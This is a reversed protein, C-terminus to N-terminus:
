GFAPATTPTDIEEDVNEILPVTKNQLKEINDVLQEFKVKKWTVLFNERHKISESLTTIVCQIFQIISTFFNLGQDLTNLQNVFLSNFPLEKVKLLRDELGINPNSLETTLDRIYGAVDKDKEPLRSSLTNFRQCIGDLLFYDAIYTKEFSEIAESLQDPMDNIASFHLTRTGYEKRLHAQYEEIFPEKLPLNSLHDRLYVELQIDLLSSKTQDIDIAEHIHIHQNLFELKDNKISIQFLLENDYGKISLQDKLTKLESTTQAKLTKLYTSENLLEMKQSFSMDIELVASLFLQNIQTMVPTMLTGPQLCLYDEEHSIKAIVESYFKDKIKTYDNSILKNTIGALESSQTVSRQLQRILDHIFNITTTNFGFNNKLDNQMKKMKTEIWRNSALQERSYKHITLPHKDYSASPYRTRLFNIAKELEPSVLYLYKVGLRTAKRLTAERTDVFNVVRRQPQEFFAKELRADQPPNRTLIRKKADQLIFIFDDTDKKNFHITSIKQAINLANEILPAYRDKLEPTIHDFLNKLQQTRYGIELIKKTQSLLNEEKTMLEFEKLGLELHYFANELEKLHKVMLPDNKEFVHLNAIKPKNLADQIRFSFTEKTIEHFRVRVDEIFSSLKLEQLFYVNSRMTCISSFTSPKLEGPGVLTRNKKSAIFEKKLKEIDWAPITHNIFCQTNLHNIADNLIDIKLYHSKTRQAIYTEISSKEKLLREISLSVEEWDEPKKTELQNLIVVCKNSLDVNSNAIAPQFLAFSTRLLSRDLNSIERFEKDQYQTLIRFFKQLEDRQEELSFLEFQHDKIHDNLKDKRINNLDYSLQTKKFGKDPNSEIYENIKDNIQDIEITIPISLSGPKLYNHTEMEDLLCLLDAYHNELWQQYYTITSKQFQPIEEVSLNYLEYLGILAGPGKFFKSFSINEEILFELFSSIDEIKGPALNTNKDPGQEKVGLSTSIKHILSPLGAVFTVLSATQSIKKNPQLFSVGQGLISGAQKSIELFGIQRNLGYYKLLSNAELILPHLLERHENIFYQVEPSVDTLLEFAKYIQSLAAMGQHAAALGGLPSSKKRSHWNVVALEVRYLSNILKKIAALQPADESSDLFPLGNNQPKLSKALPNALTNQLKQLLQDRTSSIKVLFDAASPTPFNITSQQILQPSAAPLLQKEEPINEKYPALMQIVPTLSSQVESPLAIIKLRLENATVALNYYAGRHKFLELGKAHELELFLNELDLLQNGITKIQTILYSDNPNIVYPQILFSAQDEEAVHEIILDKFMKRIQHIPQSLHMEQVYSITGNLTSLQSLEVPTITQPSTAKKKTQNKQKKRLTSIQTEVREELSNNSAPQIETRLIEKSNEAIKIKFTESAIKTEFFVSISTKTALLADIETNVVFSKLYNVGDGIVEWYSRPQLSPPKPGTQNLIQSFQNEIKLNAHALAIQIKPYLQRLVIRDAETIRAYSSNKYHALISFFENMNEQQEEILRIAAVNEAQHRNIEKERLPLISLTTPVRSHINYASDSDLLQNISRALIDAKSCFERSLLGQKLYNQRELQDAFLVLKSLSNNALTVYFELSSQTFLFGDDQITKFWTFLDMLIKSDKFDLLHLENIFQNQELDNIISHIIEMSHHQDNNLLDSNNAKSMHEMLEGIKKFASLLPNSNKWPSLDPGLLKKGQTIVYSAKDYVEMKEFQSMWGSATIVQQTKTFLPALISYNDIILARFEPTAGDLMTMTHYVQKLAQIAKPVAKIKNLNSSIDMAEWCELAKEAHYLANFFKKIAALQPPTPSCDIFPVGSEQPILHDALLDDLQNKLVDLLQIRTEAVIQSLPINIIEVDNPM